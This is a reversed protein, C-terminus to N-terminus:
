WVHINAAPIKLGRALDGAIDTVAQTSPWFEVKDGQWQIVQGHTEMCCHTLVPCGYFGESVVDADKFAQDPDGTIQEGAAKVRGAAKKPDRENVIHPLVEYDVKVKRIADRAIEETVAAVSLIETGAWQVETGAPSTVKVATVGKTKEAASTDISKIRAHAYPSILVVAHLLGPRNIDQGYKARGSAKLPGDLRSMRKGMLRRKSMEPWRYEPM